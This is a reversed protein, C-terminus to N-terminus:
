ADKGPGDLVTLFADNTSAAPTCHYLGRDHRRISRDFREDEGEGVRRREGRIHDVPQLRFQEAKEHRFRRLRQNLLRHLREYLLHRLAPVPHHRGIRGIDNGTM